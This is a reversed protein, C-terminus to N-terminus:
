ANEPLLGEALVAEEDVRLVDGVRALATDPRDNGGRVLVRGKCFNVRVRLSSYEVATDFDPKLATKVQTFVCRIAGQLQTRSYLQSRPCVLGCAHQLCASLRVRGRLRSNFLM